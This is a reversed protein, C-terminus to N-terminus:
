MVDAVNRLALNSECVAANLYIYLGARTNIVPLEPVALNDLGLTADMLDDFQAKAAENKKDMPEFSALTGTRFSELREAIQSAGSQM